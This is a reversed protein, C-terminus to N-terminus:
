DILAFKGPRHRQCRMRLFISVISAYLLVVFNLCGLLQDYEPMPPNSLAAFCPPCPHFTEPAPPMYVLSSHQRVTNYERSWREILAKAELLTDFIEVKFLEDRLKGNFSEICGNEWPSGPEIFLTQVGLVGLWDRVAKAMFAQTDTIKEASEPKRM